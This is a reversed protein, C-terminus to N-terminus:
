WPIDGAAAFDDPFLEHLGVRGAWPGAILPEIGYFHRHLDVDAAILAHAYTAAISATGPPKWNAQAHTVDRSLNQMWAYAARTEFRILDLADM